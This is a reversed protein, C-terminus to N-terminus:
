IVKSNYIRKYIQHVQAFVFNKKMDLFKLNTEMDQCYSLFMSLM